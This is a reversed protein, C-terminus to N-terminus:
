AVCDLRAGSDWSIASVAGRPLPAPAADRPSPRLSPLRPTCTASDLSPLSVPRTDKAKGRCSSVSNTALGAIAGLARFRQLSLISSPSFARALTALCQRRLGRTLEEQMWAEHMSVFAKDCSGHRERLVRRLRAGSGSLSRSDFCRLLSWEAQTLQGDPRGGAEDLFCFLALLDVNGALRPVGSRSVKEIFREFTKFDVAARRDPKKRSQLLQDFLQEVGGSDEALKRLDVLGTLLHSADFEGLYRFKKATLKNDWNRDLMSFISNASEACCQFDLDQLAEAFKPRTLGGRREKDMSRFVQDLVKDEIGFRDTIWHQFNQLRRVSLIATHLHLVMFDDEDIGDVSNRANLTDFVAAREEITTNEVWKRLPKANEIKGQWVRYQM